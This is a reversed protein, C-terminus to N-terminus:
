MALAIFDTLLTVLEKNQPQQKLALDTAKITAVVSGVLSNQTKQSKSDHTREPAPLQNWILPNVRPAMLGDVNDPRPYKGLKAQFKEESLKETLLSQVIGALNEHVPDGALGVVKLDLVIDVLVDSKSPKQTLKDVRTDLSENDVHDVDHVEGGDENDAGDDEDLDVEPAESSFSVFNANLQQIEKLLAAFVTAADATDQNPATSNSGSSGKDTNKLNQEAM